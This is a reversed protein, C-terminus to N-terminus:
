EAHFMSEILVPTDHLRSHSHVAHKPSLAGFASVLTKEVKEADVAFFNTLPGSVVRHTCSVSSRVVGPLSALSFHPPVTTAVHRYFRCSLFM